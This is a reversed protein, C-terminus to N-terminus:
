RKSPAAPCPKQPLLEVSQLKGKLAFNGYNLRLGSSVGNEYLDFSLTYAPLRDAQGIEFYSTTVPYSKLGRLAPYPAPKNEDHAEPGGIVTLTEYVKRGDPSGDYIKASLLREGREAAALMARTHETPLHVRGPLVFNAPKPKTVRVSLANNKQRTVTGTVDERIQENVYNQTKFRYTTAGANEWSENRLDSVTEQGEGTDLSTVQRLMITYGECATGTFQFAIRGRAKDVQTGPLEADLVLDYIARHAALGAASAGNGAFVALLLTAVSRSCFM